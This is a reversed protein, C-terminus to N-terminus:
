PKSREAVIQYPPCEVAPLRLPRFPVGEGKFFKGFLEYYELRLTQIGVIMGEFGIIIINGVIIILTRLIGGSPGGGLMDALLFVAMSLGAHAVAFAGLRVYSLTNSIYSILAEFLEFFSEVLVEILSGHILPRHGRVLNTLPQAMFLALMLLGVPIILWGHIGAGLAISLVVGLLGWYLLLGVFGNKDFIADVLNGERAATVLRFIFGINLLIVGFGISAGLLTFIDKLPKLWVHPILEEMGFVSGYLVGFISSSLGCALLIAGAGKLKDLQRVAGFAALAGILALVLGQGLDGFMIGFMLTFTVGVLPTPDLERYGPVGYTSVLAEVPRFLRGNRLLTPVQREGPAFPSNEEFTVRGGAAEEIAVRLIHVQDRPVWGAILYVRGRHGFHSMAESIARNRRIRSLMLLLEPAVQAALARRDKEIEGMEQRTEEIRKLVEVLVEQATGSFEEPLALPDLFASELARDLIAGHEQASFAFILVRNQYRYVPIISYPIRFLSAELRALNEAPITGAVLHLHELQNLDSIRVSLPALTELSKSTLEWRELRQRLESTRERLARTDAEIRALGESLDALDETAHMDTECPEYREEISLQTLLERIRRELNTYSSIRGAWETGVGEAWKGLANVDLLHMVGLQAVTQAVHEVDNEFVFIDVESMEAPVFM